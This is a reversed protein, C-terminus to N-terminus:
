VAAPLERDAAEAAVEVLVTEHQRFPQFPAEFELSMLELAVEEEVPEHQQFSAMLGLAMWEALELLVQSLTRDVPPSLM